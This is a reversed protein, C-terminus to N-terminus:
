TDVTTSGHDRIDYRWFSGVSLVAVLVLAICALATGSWAITFTTATAMAGARLDGLRPGGSVSRGIHPVNM